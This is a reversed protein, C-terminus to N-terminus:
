AEAGASRNGGHAEAVVLRPGPCRPAPPPSPRRLGRVEAVAPRTRAPPSPRPLAGVPPTPPPSEDKYYFLLYADKSRRAKTVLAPGHPGKLDDYEWFATEGRLEERLVAVYHGGRLGGTHEIFAGLSYTATQAAVGRASAARRLGRPRSNPGGGGRAASTWAGQVACPAIRPRIARRRAVPRRARRVANPFCSQPLTLTAPIDVDCAWREGAAGGGTHQFRKLAIVLHAPALACTARRWAHPNGCGQRECLREVWEGRGLQAFHSELCKSLTYPPGDPSAPDRQDDTSILIEYQSEEFTDEGTSVSGCVTCERSMTERWMMDGFLVSHAEVGAFDACGRLVRNLVVLLEHADQHDAGELVAQYAELRGQTRAEALLAKLLPQADLPAPAGQRRGAGAWV